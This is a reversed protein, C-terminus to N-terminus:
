EAPPSVTRCFRLSYGVGLRGLGSLGRSSDRGRIWGSGRRCRGLCKCAVDRAATKQGRGRCRGSMAVAAALSVAVAAAVAVAWDFGSPLAVAMTMAAHPVAIAVVRVVQAAPGPRNGAAVSVPIAAVVAVAPASTVAVHKCAQNM